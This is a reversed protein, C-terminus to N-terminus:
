RREVADEPESEARVASSSAPHWCASIRYRTADRTGRSLPHSLSGLLILAERSGKRYVLSRVFGESGDIIYTSPPRSINLAAGVFETILPRIPILVDM